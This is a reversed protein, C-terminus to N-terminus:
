TQDRHFPQKQGSPLEQKIRFCYYDTISAVTAGYQLKLPDERSLAKIIHENMVSRSSLCGNRARM